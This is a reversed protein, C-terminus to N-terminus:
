MCPIEFIPFVNYNSGKEKSSINGNNEVRYNFDGRRSQQCTWASVEYWMNVLSKSSDIQIYPDIADIINRNLWISYLETINPILANLMIGNPLLFTGLTRCFNLAPLSSWSYGENDMLMENCWTASEQGSQNYYWTQDASGSGANIYNYTPYNAPVGAPDGYTATTRYNGDLVFYAYKNYVTYKVQITDGSALTTTSTNYFIGYDSLTVINGDYSWDTGDYSFIYTYEGAAKDYSSNVQGEFLGKKVGLNTIGSGVTQSIVTTSIPKNDYNGGPKYYGVFTAMNLIRDGLTYVDANSETPVMNINVTKNNDVYVSGFVPKYGTKTVQYNLIKGTTVNVTKTTAM